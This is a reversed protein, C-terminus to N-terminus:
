NGHESFLTLCDSASECGNGPRRVKSLTERVANRGAYAMVGASIATGTCWSCLKRVSFVQRGMNFAAMSADLVLKAGLLKRAGADRRSFIALALTAGFSALGLLGDPIGLPHAAKSMTIRDSAFLEMPPDRLRSLLGMQHLAVPVLTVLASCCAGLLLVDDARMDSAGDGSTM